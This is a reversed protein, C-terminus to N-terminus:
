SCIYLFILQNLINDYEKKLVFIKIFLEKKNTSKKLYISIMFNSKMKSLQFHLHSIISNLTSM